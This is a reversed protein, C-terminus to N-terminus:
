SKKLWKINRNEVNADTLTGGLWWSEDREIVTVLRGLRDMYDMDTTMRLICYYARRKYVQRRSRGSEAYDFVEVLYFQPSVALRELCAVFVDGIKYKYGKERKDRRTKRGVIMEEHEAQKAKARTARYKEESGYGRPPVGVDVDKNPNKDM